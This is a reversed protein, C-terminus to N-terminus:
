REVHERENRHARVARLDKEEIWGTPRDKGYDGTLIWPELLYQIITGTYITDTVMCGIVRYLMERWQPTWNPATELRCQVAQHARFRPEKRGAARRKRAM